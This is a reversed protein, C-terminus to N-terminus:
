VRQPHASPGTVEFLSARCACGFLLSKDIRSGMDRVLPLDSDPVVAEVGVGIKM